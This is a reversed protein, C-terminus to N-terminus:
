GKGASAQISVHRIRQIVTITSLAFIIGLTVQLWPGRAPGGTLGALFLGIGLLVVREARPAIGVEGHFGLSEAKARTYSVMFASSMALTALLGALPVGAVVCGYAIGAYLVAEGWRDFTSDFFAGLKSAQGTARALAGDLLDFLGGGVSVLGAVLWLELGAVAAAACAILFGVVTLANPTLGLRGFGTALPVAAGRIRARLAVPVFSQDGVTM